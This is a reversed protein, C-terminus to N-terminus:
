DDCSLLLKLAYNVCLFTVLEVGWSFNFLRTLYQVVNLNKDGDCNPFFILRGNPNDFVFKYFAM